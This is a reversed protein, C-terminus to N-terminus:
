PQCQEPAPYPILGEWTMTEEGSVVILKLPFDTCEKWNFTLTEGPIETDKRMTDRYFRYVGTGGSASLVLTGTWREQQLDAQWETLEPAAVNLPARPTPTAIFNNPPTPTYAPLDGVEVTLVIPSSIPNGDPLRIEWNSEYSGPEGPAIMPLLVQVQAEADLANLTLTAPAGMQEGSVFALATKVPWSCNGGNRLTLYNILSTEPPVSEANPATYIRLVEARLTCTQTTAETVAPAATAEPLTATATPTIVAEDTETPSVTHTPAPATTTSTPATLSFPFYAELNAPFIGQTAGWGVFGVMVAILLILVLRLLTHRKAPQDKRRAKGSEKGTSKDAMSKTKDPWTRLLPNEEEDETKKKKKGKEPKAKAPASAPAPTPPASALRSSEVFAPAELELAQRLATAMEAGTAFRAEPQKALSKLIVAELPRPLDPAFQTPPPVPENIHKMVLTMPIEAEFPLRGTAIQYLVVGLSYIDSLPTGSQGTAIEPAMYAPTGVMAGSATLGTLSLMRAIGFDTLVPQGEDTFMINAPKIDRHVMERRHAYDLADAIAAAVAAAEKPEFPGDVLREKLTPGTIYEMVMYYVEFEENYDFDYVQVINPHRLTAVIRAERKFRTVFGEDEALFPHLVKIAVERDLNIQQGRYVEAMGGNGIHGTVQYKGLTKNLLFHISGM